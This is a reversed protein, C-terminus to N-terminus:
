ILRENIDQDVDGHHSVPIAADMLFLTSASNPTSLLNEVHM